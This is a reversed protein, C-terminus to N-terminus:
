PFEVVNVSLASAVVFAPVDVWFYLYASGMAPELLTINGSRALPDAKLPVDLFRSGKTFTVSAVAATMDFSSFAYHIRVNARPEYDGAGNVILGEIQAATTTGALTVKTAFLTNGKNTSTGISQSVLSNTITM